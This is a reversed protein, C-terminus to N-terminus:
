SSASIADQYGVIPAEDRCAGASVASCVSADLRLEGAGFLDQDDYVYVGQIVVQLRAAPDRPDAYAPSTPGIASVLASAGIALALTWPVTAALSQTLSCARGLARQLTIGISRM